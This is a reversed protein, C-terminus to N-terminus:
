IRKKSHIKKKAKDFAPKLIALLTTSKEGLDKELGDLLTVLFPDKYFVLDDIYNYGKSLVTLSEFDTYELEQSFDTDEGLSNEFRVYGAKDLEVLWRANDSLYFKDDVLEDFKNLLEKDDKEFKQRAITVLVFLVSAMRNDQIKEM